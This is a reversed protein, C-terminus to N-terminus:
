ATDCQMRTRRTIQKDQLGCYEERTMEYYQWFRHQYWRDDIYRLGLKKAARESRVNGHAIVCAIKEKTSNQLAHTIAFRAAEPGLGRGAGYETLSFALELNNTDEYDRLGCRGVFVLGGPTKEYVMWDGFGNKRWAAIFRDLWKRVDEASQPVDNFLAKRVLPDNHLKFLEAEHELGPSALHLRETDSKIMPTELLTAEHRLAPM